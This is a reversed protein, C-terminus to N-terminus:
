TTSRQRRERVLTNRRDIRREVASKLESMERRQEPGIARKTQGFVPELPMLWPSKIPLYFLLVHIGGERKVQRNHEAIHARVSAAIHWPGNDWFIVLYRVGRRRYVELVGQLYNWTEVQNWTDHWEGSVEREIADMGAYLACSPPREGKKWDKAKAVRAPRGRQAWQEAPYPWLVFWSEDVFIGARRDPAANVWALM